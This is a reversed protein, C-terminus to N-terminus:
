NKGRLRLNCLVVSRERLKLAPSPQTPTVAAAAGTLFQSSKLVELKNIIALAPSSQVPAIYQDSPSPVIINLESTMM